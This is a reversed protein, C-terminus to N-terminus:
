QGLGIVEDFIGAVILAGGLLYTIWELPLDLTTPGSHVIILNVGLWLTGNLIARLSRPLQPESAPM